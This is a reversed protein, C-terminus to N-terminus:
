VNNEVEQEKKVLSLWSIADEENEFFKFGNGLVKKVSDLLYTLGTRYAIHTSPLVALKQEIDKATQKSKPMWKLILWARSMMKVFGIKRQDILVNGCNVKQAEELSLNWIYKYDEDSINGILTLKIFHNEANYELKGYEKELLTNM